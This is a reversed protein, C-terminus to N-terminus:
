NLVHAALFVLHRNLHMDVAFKATSHYTKNQLKTVLKSLKFNSLLDM